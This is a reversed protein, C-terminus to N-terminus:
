FFYKRSTHNNELDFCGGFNIVSKGNKFDLILLM